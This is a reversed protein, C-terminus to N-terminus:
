RESVVNYSETKSGNRIVTVVSSAPDRPPAKALGTTMPPAPTARMELRLRNELDSMRQALDRDAKTRTAEAAARSEDLRKQLEALRDASRAEDPGLDGVTVRDSSDSESGNAQRLALSLRGIGQALIVKQAQQITLELTVVRAISPKEQREDALQDVALVKARQLLVDAFAGAESAGTEGRTLIVDVRDGPLVFGAVGRVEDVRIAVARMGDEIQTSLTARQDPATVRSMLVPENRQLSVLSLRRGDRLFEGISAVSGELPDSARWPVERLNDATLPAGFPVASSTVVITSTRGARRTASNSSEVVNHVLLAALGGFALAVVLSISPRLAM